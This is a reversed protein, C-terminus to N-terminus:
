VPGYRLNPAAPKVSGPCFSWLLGVTVNRLSSQPTGGCDSSLPMVSGRGSVNKVRTFFRHTKVIERKIKQELRANAM